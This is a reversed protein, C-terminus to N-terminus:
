AEETHMGVMAELKAVREQLRDIRRHYSIANGIEMFLNVCIVVFTATQILVM